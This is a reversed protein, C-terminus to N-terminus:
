LSTNHNEILKRWYRKNIEHQQFGRSIYFPIGLENDKEVSAYQDTAGDNVHEDTFRELLKSGIGQYRYKEDIYFVYIESTGEETLIGGIIGAVKGDAIAVHTYIGKKIDERVREVNYWQKVN